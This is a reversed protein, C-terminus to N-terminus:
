STVFISKCKGTPCTGGGQGLMHTGMSVFIGVAKLWTNCLKVSNELSM